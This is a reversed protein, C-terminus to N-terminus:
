KSVRQPSGGGSQEVGFIFVAISLNVLGRDLPPDFVADNKMVYKLVARAYM